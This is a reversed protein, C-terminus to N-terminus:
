VGFNCSLSDNTVRAGQLEFSWRIRYDQLPFRGPNLANFTVTSCQGVFRQSVDPTLTHWAVVGPTCCLREVTGSATMSVQIDSLQRTVRRSAMTVCGHSDRSDVHFLKLRV